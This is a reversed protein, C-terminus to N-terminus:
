ALGLVIVLAEPHSESPLQHELEPGWSFPLNKPPPQILQAHILWTNGVQPM